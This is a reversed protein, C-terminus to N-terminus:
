FLGDGQEDIVQKAKRLTAEKADELSPFMDARILKHQRTEGDIEKSIIGCLRFQGGEPQPTVTIQFGEHEVAPEAQAKTGGGFLRKLLSM